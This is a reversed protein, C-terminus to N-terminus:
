KMSVLVNWANKKVILVTKLLYQIKTQILVCLWLRSPFQQNDVAEVFLTFWLYVLLAPQQCLGADLCIWPLQSSPTTPFPACGVPIVAAKLLNNILASHSLKVLLQRLSSDSCRSGGRVPFPGDKWIFIINANWKSILTGTDHITRCDKIIRPPWTM